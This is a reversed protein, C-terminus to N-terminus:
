NRRHWARPEKLVVTANTGPPIDLVRQQRIYELVMDRVVVDSTELRANPMAAMKAIEPFRGGGGALHYSNLAVKLRRKGNIASGDMARLNRIRHGHPAKPYLDYSLGWAGPYRETGLYETAEEMLAQIEGLTLWLCGATNEYPVIRWVDAVRIDGALIGTEVLPGHLVVEAGTHAAIAASLLQQVPCLGPLAASYNIDRKTTGVRTELWKTAKALDREVLKALAPDEPVDDDIPVFRFQKDVLRNEVTDYAFDVRMVGAAGYGAQAYSVNGVRIGTLVYHLHGGLVADFEGFRRAITNIENAADDSSLLGQHVLLVMIHPQQARVLPLTRELARRSDTFSIDQQALGRTWQPINPTTLGVVAVRIGDVEKIIFPLVRQLALPAGSGVRMNAALPVARMQGLFAALTEVGWDFEHNGIAFADYGLENMVTAMVRGQTLFSAASGQFIDGCDLLLTHPNDAQARRILTACQLLSGAGRGAEAITEQRLTGHLDTTNLITLNVVRAGADTAALWIAMFAVGWRGAMKCCITSRTRNM